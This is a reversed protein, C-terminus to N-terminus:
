AIPEHHLIDQFSLQTIPQYTHELHYLTEIARVQKLFREYIANREEQYTRDCFFARCGLARHERISCLNVRQFPCKGDLSQAAVPEEGAQAMWAAELGTVYLMHGIVAFDCCDSCQVCRRALPAFAEDMRAYVAALEAFAQEPIESM